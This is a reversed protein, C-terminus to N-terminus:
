EFHNYKPSNFCFYIPGAAPQRSQSSIRGKQQPTSTLEAPPIAKGKKRHFDAGTKKGIIGLLDARKRPNNSLRIKATRKEYKCTM